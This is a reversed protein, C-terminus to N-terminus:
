RDKNPFFVSLTQALQNTAGTPAGFKMQYPQDWPDLYYVAGHLKTSKAREITTFTKNLLVLGLSNKAPVLGLTNNTTVLPQLMTETVPGDVSKDPWTGYVNYFTIYATIMERLQTESKTRRAHNRAQILSSALVVMLIGILAIVVLMEMLTFGGRRHRQPRKSRNPMELKMEFGNSEEEHVEHGEHHIGDGSESNMAETV